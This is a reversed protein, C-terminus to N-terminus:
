ERCSKVREVRNFVVCLDRCSEVREVRNFVVCLDRCTEVREVRSFVVRGIRGKRSFITTPKPPRLSRLSCM